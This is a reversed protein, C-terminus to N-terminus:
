FDIIKHQGRSEPKDEIRETFTRQVSLTRLDANATSGPKGRGLDSDIEKKSESESDSRPGLRSGCAAAALPGAGNAREARPGDHTGRGSPRFRPGQALGFVKWTALRPHHRATHWDRDHLRSECPHCNPFKSVLARNGRGPGPRQGGPSRSAPCSVGARCSPIDPM